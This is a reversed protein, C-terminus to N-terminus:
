YRRQKADFSYFTKRNLDVSIKIGVWPSLCHQARYHRVRSKHIFLLLGELGGGGTYFPM